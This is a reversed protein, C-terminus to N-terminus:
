HRRMLAPVDCRIIAVMICFNKTPQTVIGSQRVYDIVLKM